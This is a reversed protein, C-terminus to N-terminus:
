RRFIITERWNTKLGFFSRPPKKIFTRKERPDEMDFQGEMAKLEFLFSNMGHDLREQFAETGLNKLLNM